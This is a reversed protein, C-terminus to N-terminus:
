VGGRPEILEPVLRNGVRTCSAFGNAPLPKLAVGDEVLPTAAPHLVLRDGQVQQRLAPTPLLTAPMLGLLVISRPESVDPQRLPRDCLHYPGTM